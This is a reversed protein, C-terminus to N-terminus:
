YISGNESILPEITQIDFNFTVSRFFFDVDKLYARVDKNVPVDRNEDLDDEIQVLDNVFIKDYSQNIIIDKEQITSAPDGLFNLTGEFYKILMRTQERYEEMDEVSVAWEQKNQGHLIISSFLFGLLFVSTRYFKIM